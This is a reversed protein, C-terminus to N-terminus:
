GNAAALRLGIRVLRRGVFRRVPRPAAQSRLEREVRRRAAAAEIDSILLKAVDYQLM